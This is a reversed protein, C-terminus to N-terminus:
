ASDETEIAMLNGSFLFLSVFTIKLYKKFFLFDPYM